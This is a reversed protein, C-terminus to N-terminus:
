GDFKVNVDPKDISCNPCFWKLKKLKIDDPNDFIKQIPVFSKNNSIIKRNIINWEVALFSLGCAKCQFKM